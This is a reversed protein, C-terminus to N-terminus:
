VHARGIEVFQRFNYTAVDLGVLAGLDQADETGHLEINVGKLQLSKFHSLLGGFQDRAWSYQTEDLMGNHNSTSKSKPRLIWVPGRQGTFYVTERDNKKLSETQWALAHEDLLTEYKNSDDMGMFYVFGISEDKVKLEKAFDFTEIWSQIQVKSSTKAKPAAKSATSKKAM